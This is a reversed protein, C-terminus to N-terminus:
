NNKVKPPFPCTDDYYYIMNQDGLFSFYGQITRGNLDTLGSIMTSLDKIGVTIVNPVSMDFVVSGASVTKTVGPSTTDYGTVSVKCTAIPQGGTLSKLADYYYGLSEESNVKLIYGQGCDFSLVGMSIATDECSGMRVASNDAFASTTLIMLSLAVCLKKISFLM